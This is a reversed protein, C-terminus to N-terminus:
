LARRREKWTCYEVGMNLCYWCIKCVEKPPHTAANAKEETVEGPEKDDEDGTKRPEAEAQETSQRRTRDGSSDGDQESPMYIEDYSIEECM